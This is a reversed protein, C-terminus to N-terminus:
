MLINQFYRYFVIRVKLQMKKLGYLTELDRVNRRMRNNQEHISLLQHLLGYLKDLQDLADHTALAAVVTSGSRNLLPTIYSRCESEDSSKNTESSTGPRSNENCNEDMTKLFNKERDKYGLLYKLADPISSEKEKEKDRDKPHPLTSSPTTHPPVPQSHPEPPPAPLSSRRGLSKKGLLKEKDM